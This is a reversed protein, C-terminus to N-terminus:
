KTRGTRVEALRKSVSDFMAALEDLRECVPERRGDVALKETEEALQQLRFAGISGASSKLSHLEGAVAELDGSAGADRAISLRRPAHELFLDIIELVVDAGVMQELRDIVEADIWDEGTL